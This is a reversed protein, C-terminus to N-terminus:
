VLSFPSIPCKPDKRKILHGAQSIACKYSSVLIRFPLPSTSHARVVAPFHYRPSPPLSPTCKALGNSPCHTGTTDPNDHSHNSTLRPPFHHVSGMGPGACMSAKRRGPPQFKSWGRDFWIRNTGFHKCHHRRSRRRVTAANCRRTTLRSFATARHQLRPM